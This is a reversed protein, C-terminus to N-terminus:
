DLIFKLDDLKFNTISEDSNSILKDILDKKQNQLQIVRQEISNECVLKIVEVNKKQGIRHARDTAQDMAAINWWPDLHIVVEAGVLNLGVGGAKLSILFVKTENDNNFKDVYAKRDELKTDGTLIFYKIKANFLMDEVINLAKVFSSFILIKKSQLINENIINELEIMKGSKGNYDQIYTLPDVCIQRLRMLFPLVDFAKGNIALTNAADFKVAEYIKRQEKTMDCSIIREFKPPLDKLVEGKTRRLIFPAVKIAIEDKYEDDHLYREKFDTIDGLYGPMLFDFISWLDLINNEIPTGTLAFKHKGNLLKVSKSKQTGVNKIYQAEDLIIYNFNIKNENYLDVDNRLSDYGTIYIHKELNNINSIMRNREIQSGYIISVDEEKAFKEYESLWNFSLSKPCVILSPMENEDSRLLTIIELTKGLGMDDALIGGLNYKSLISLFYFGHKQYERLSGDIQPIKIKSSKFNTLENIMNTVYEDLSLMNEHAIAKLSQYIPIPTKESLHKMDLNLDDVTRYFEKADEDSIDIIRDKSLIVFKKKKKISQLIQYLEEDTYPSEEFIAEMLNSEYQIRIQPLSLKMIKKNQLEESLFVNCYNKIESFDMTFFSYIDDEKILKNDKFGIKTLFNNYLNYKNIDNKDTPKLIKSGEKYLQTEVLIEKNEYDFYANIELESIKFDDNIEESIDILSRYKYYINEKFSDIVYSVNMGNNDNLFKIIKANEYANIYDINNGKAVFFKNKGILLIQDYTNLIYDKDIYAKFYIEDLRIFYSNDNITLYDNKYLEIIKEISNSSIEKYKNDYDSYVIRDNQLIDILKQSREDFNKINHNFKLSKGYSITNSEEVNKLFEEIYKVIYDKTIGVKLSFTQNEEYIDFEINLHAKFDMPLIPSDNSAFEEISYLYEQKIEEKIIEERRSKTKNYENLFHPSNFYYNLIKEEFINSFVFNHDTKIKKLDYDFLAQYFYRKGLKISLTIEDSITVCDFDDDEDIMIRSFPDRKYFEAKIDFYKFADLDLNTDNILEGDLASLIYKNNPFITLCKKFERRSIRNKDFLLILYGISFKDDHNLYIPLNKMFDDAFILSDKEKIFEIKNDISLYAPDLDEFDLYKIFKNLLEQDYKSAKLAAIIIEKNIKYPCNFLIQKIDEDYYEEFLLPANYLKYFNNRIVMLEEKYLGLYYALEIDTETSSQNKEHFLNEPRTMNLITHYDVLIQNYFSNTQLSSENEHLISFIEKDCIILRKLHLFNLKTPFYNINILKMTSLLEDVTMLKLNDHFKKTLRIRELETKAIKYENLYEVAEKNYKKTDIKKNTESITIEKSYKKKIENIDNVLQAILAYSHKCDISVPCTCTTSISYKNFLVETKYISTGYITGSLTRGMIYYRMIKGTNIYSQAKQITHYNFFNKFDNDELKNAVDDSLNIVEVQSVLRIEDKFAIKLSANVQSIFIGIGYQISFYYNNM